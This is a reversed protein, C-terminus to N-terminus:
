DATLVDRRGVDLWWEVGGLIMLAGGLYGYLNVIDRWFDTQRTELYSIWHQWTKLFVHPKGKLNFTIKELPMCPSLENIWHTIRPAEEEKQAIAICKKAATM